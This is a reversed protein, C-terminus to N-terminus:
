FNEDWINKAETIYNSDEIYNMESPATNMIQKLINKAEDLENIEILAKALYILQLPTARGTEVAKRFYKVAKNDDPWNIMLPIYPATFYVAGLLFYGGGDEYNSDMVIVDVAKDRYNDAAGLQSIQRVGLLKAWNSITALNWYLLEVSEPYKYIYRESLDKALEFYLLKDDSGKAVYQAMFYYSKVLYISANLDTDSTNYPEQLSEFIKIAKSINDVKPVLGNSGESRNNYYAKGEEFKDVQCFLLSIM